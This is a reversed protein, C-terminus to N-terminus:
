LSEAIKTGLTPTASCCFGHFAGAPIYDDQDIYTLVGEEFTLLAMDAAGASAYTIIKINGTPFHRAPRNQAIALMEFTTCLRFGHENAERVHRASEDDDDDDGQEAVVIMCQLMLEQMTAGEVSRREAIFSNGYVALNDSTVTRHTKHMGAFVVAVCVVAVTLLLSIAKM